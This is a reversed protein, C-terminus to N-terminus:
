NREKRIKLIVTQPTIIWYMASAHHYDIMIGTGKFFQVASPTGPSWKATSYNIGWGM